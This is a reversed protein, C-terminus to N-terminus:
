GRREQAVKAAVPRRRPSSTRVDKARGASVGRPVAFQQLLAFIGDLALALAAILLASGLMEDYRQLPLGRFIYIGLGGLGVYAALTATAVVQLTAARLGGILLPLGLPVEVKWLIQWETMGIARASDIVRRDVAEIGAYAGALISPIALLVFATVAAIQLQTQAVGFLLVLLLILGFSPLARAAGSLGVAFERGKGTHGIYFGLPVAILAAIVVSLFTYFLHEEVRVPIPNSGGLREPSFLWQIAEVLLNM